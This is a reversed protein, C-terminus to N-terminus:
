LMSEMLDGGAVVHHLLAVERVAAAPHRGHGVDGGLVGRGGHRSWPRRAKSQIPM